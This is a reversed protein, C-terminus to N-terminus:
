VYAHYAAALRSKKFDPREILDNYSIFLFSDFRKFVRKLTIIGNGIQLLTMKVDNDVPPPYLSHNKQQFHLEFNPLYRRLEVIFNRTFIVVAPVYYPVHKPSAARHRWWAYIKENLRYLFNTKRHFLERNPKPLNLTNLKKKVINIKYCILFFSVSSSRALVLQCIKYNLLSCFYAIFHFYRAGFSINIIRILYFKKIRHFEIYSDRYNLVHWNIDMVHVACQWYLQKSQRVARYTAVLPKGHLSRRMM